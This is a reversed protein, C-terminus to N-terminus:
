SASSKRSCDIMTGDSCMADDNWAINVFMKLYIRLMFQDIDYRQYKKIQHEMDPMMELILNHQCVNLYMKLM